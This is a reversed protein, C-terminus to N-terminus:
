KVVIQLNNIPLNATKIGDETEAMLKFQYLCREKQCQYRHQVQGEAQTLVETKGDGYNLKVQLESSSPNDLLYHFTLRSGAEIVVPQKIDAAAPQTRLSLLVPRKQCVQYCSKPCDTVIQLQRGQGLESESQCCHYGFGACTTKPSVGLESNKDLQMVQRNKVGVTAQRGLIEVRVGSLEEGWVVGSDGAVKKVLPPLKEQALVIPEFSYPNCLVEVKYTTPSAFRLQLIADVEGEIPIAGQSRCQEYYSGDLATRRLKTLSSKITSIGMMLLIERAVLAGILSFVLLALTSKLIFKIIRM